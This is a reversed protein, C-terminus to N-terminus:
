QLTRLTISYRNNQVPLISHEWESRSPGDLVYLSRRKVTVNIVSHRSRRSKQHPRFRFICDELLSIGAIMGFPPADRHWNIVSGQPYETVLIEAFSEPDIALTRATKRTLPKLESPVPEGLQLKCTDFHYDYGFSKVKRKAEFGQFIMPRLDIANVIGLLISEEELSLFDSYYRFGEPVVPQLPFLLEM